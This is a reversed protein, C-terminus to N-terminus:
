GDRVVIGNEIKGFGRLGGTDDRVPALIAYAQPTCSPYYGYALYEFIGKFPVIKASKTGKFPVFDLL